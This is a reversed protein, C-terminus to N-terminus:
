SELRIKGVRLAALEDQLGRLRRVANKNPPALVEFNIGWVLVLLVKNIHM